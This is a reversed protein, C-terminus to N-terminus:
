YRASKSPVLKLRRRIEEALYSIGESKLVYTAGSTRVAIDRLQEEPMASFFVIPLFSSERIVKGLGDGSLGPMMVDLVVLDPRERGVQATVGFPGAQALVRFGEYRLFSATAELTEPNDDVLMVTPPKNDALKTM